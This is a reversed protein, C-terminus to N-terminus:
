NRVRDREGGSLICSTKFGDDRMLALDGTTLNGEM